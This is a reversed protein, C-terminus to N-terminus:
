KEKGACVNLTAVEGCIPHLRTRFKMNSQGRHFKDIAPFHPRPSKHVNRPSVNVVGGAAVHPPTRLRSNFMRENLGVFSLRANAQGDSSYTVHAFVLEEM